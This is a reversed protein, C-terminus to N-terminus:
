GCVTSVGALDVYTGSVPCFGSFFYEVKDPTMQQARDLIFSAWRHSAANRNGSPFIENYHEFLDNLEKDEWEGPVKQGALQQREMASKAEMSASRPTGASAPQDEGTIDSFLYLVIASLVLLQAVVALGSRQTAM